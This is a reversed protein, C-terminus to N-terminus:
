KFIPPDFVSVAQPTWLGERFIPTRFAKQRWAKERFITALRAKVTKRGDVVKWTLVWRTQTM